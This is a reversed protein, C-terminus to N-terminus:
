TEQFMSIFSPKCIIQGSMYVESSFCKSLLLYHCPSIYKTYLDRVTPFKYSIRGSYDFPVRTEFKSKKTSLNFMEIM